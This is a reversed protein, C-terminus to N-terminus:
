MSLSLVLASTIGSRAHIGGCCVKLPWAFYTYNSPSTRPRFPRHRNASIPTLESQPSTQKVELILRDCVTITPARTVSGLGYSGSM